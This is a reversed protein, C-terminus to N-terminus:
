IVKHQVRKLYYNEEMSSLCDLSVCMATRYICITIVPCIFKLNHLMVKRNISIFGTEADILLTGETNNDNFIDHMAHIATESGAVQGGCLQQSGAAQLVDKKLPIMVSKGDTRRFM